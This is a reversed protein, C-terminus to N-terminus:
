ARPCCSVPTLMELAIDKTREGQLQHINTGGFIHVDHIMFRATCNPFFLRLSRLICDNQINGTPESDPSLSGPGRSSDASSFSIPLCDPVPTLHDSAIDTHFFGPASQMRSGESPACAELCKANQVLSATTTSAEPYEAVTGGCSGVAKGRKSPTTLFGEMCCSCLGLMRMTLLFEMQPKDEWGRMGPSLPFPPVGPGQPM